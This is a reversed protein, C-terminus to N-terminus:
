TLTNHIYIYKLTNGVYRVRFGRTGLTLAPGAEAHHLLGGHPRGAEEGGGGLEQQAGEGEVRFLCYCPMIVLLEM